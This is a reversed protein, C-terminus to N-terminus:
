HARKRNAKARDNRVCDRDPDELIPCECEGFIFEIQGSFRTVGLEHVRYSGIVGVEGIFDITNLTAVMARLPEKSTKLVLRGAYPYKANTFSVPEGEHSISPPIEIIIPLEFGEKPERKPATLRHLERM